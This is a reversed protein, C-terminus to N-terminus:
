VMEHLKSDGVYRETNMRKIATLLQRFREATLVKGTAAVCPRFEDAEVDASLRDAVPSVAPKATAKPPAAKKAPQTSDQALVPAAALAAIALALACRSLWSTLSHRM